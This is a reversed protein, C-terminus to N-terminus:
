RVRGIRPLPWYRFWPRGEVDAARVSGFARSDTSADPADGAVVTLSAPFSEFRSGAVSIQFGQVDLTGGVDVAGNVNLDGTKTQTSASTDIFNGSTRRMARAIPWRSTIRSPTTTGISGAVRSTRWSRRPRARRSRMPLSLPARLAARVAGTTNM